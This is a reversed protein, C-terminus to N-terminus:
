PIENEDFFPEAQSSLNSESLNSESLESEFAEPETVEPEPATGEGSPTEEGADAQPMLRLNRM